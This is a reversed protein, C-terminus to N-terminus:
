FSNPIHFLYSTGDGEELCTRFSYNFEQFFEEISYSLPLPPHPVPFLEPRAVAAEAALLSREEAERLNVFILM